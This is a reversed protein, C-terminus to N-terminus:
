TGRVGKKTVAIGLPKFKRLYRYTTVFCFGPDLLQYDNQSIWKNLYSEDHWIPIVNAREDQKIADSIDMCLKWFDDRYGGVVAGCVYTRRQSKEVYAVSAAENEWAGFREGKLRARLRVQLARPSAIFSYYERWKKPTWFGPHSVVSPVGKRSQLFFEKFFDNNILMDADLHILFDELIHKSENLYFDYRKISIAPWPLAKIQHVVVTFGSQTQLFSNAEEVKDTFLHFTVKPIVAASADINLLASKWYEIYEGTAVTLVGLNIM